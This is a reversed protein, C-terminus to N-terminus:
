REAALQKLHVNEQALRTVQQELWALHAELSVLRNDTRNMHWNFYTHPPQEIAWGNAVRALSPEKIDAPLARAAWTPYPSQYEAIFEDKTIPMINRRQRILSTRDHFIGFYQPPLPSRNLYLINLRLSGPTSGCTAEPSAPVKRVSVM